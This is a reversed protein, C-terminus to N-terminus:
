SLSKIIKKFSASVIYEKRDEFSLITLEKKDIKTIMGTKSENTFVDGYYARVRRYIEIESPPKMGKSKMLMRQQEVVMAEANWEVMDGINM